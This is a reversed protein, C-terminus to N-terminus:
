EMKEIDEMALNHAKGCSIEIIKIDNKTFYVPVVPVSVSDTHGLGLSGYQNDGCSLVNGTSTLFLSHQFGAKIKIINYHNLNMM